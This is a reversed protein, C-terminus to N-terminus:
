PFCRCRRGRVAGGAGVLSAVAPVAAAIMAGLAGLDASSLAFVLALVGVVRASARGELQRIIGAGIRDVIEM